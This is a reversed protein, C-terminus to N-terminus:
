QLYSRIMSILQKIEKMRFLMEARQLSDLDENDLRKRSIVELFGAIESLQGIFALVGAPLTKNKGPFDKLATERLFASFSLGAQRARAEIYKKEIPTCRVLIRYSKQLGKKVYM